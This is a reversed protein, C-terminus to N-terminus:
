SHHRRREEGVSGTSGTKYHVPLKVITGQAALLQRADTSSVPTTAFGLALSLNTDLGSDPVFQWLRNSNMQGAHNKMTVNTEILVPLM